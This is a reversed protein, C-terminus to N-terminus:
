LKRTLTGLFAIIKTNDATNNLPKVLEKVEELNHKQRNVETELGFAMKELRDYEM